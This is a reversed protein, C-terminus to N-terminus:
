DTRGEFSTLFMSYYGEEQLHLTPRDLLLQALASESGNVSDVVRGASVREFDLADIFLNLYAEAVSLM